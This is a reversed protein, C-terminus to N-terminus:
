RKLKVSLKTTAKNGAEDSLKVKLKAKAKKGQRLVKAIRKADKTKKPKLKLTKKTGGAVSKNQPKLKYSDKKVKVKGTAKAELDEKAKVKVKVVIKKGKQKQTRKATATGDTSAGRDFVAVGSHFSAVYANEGDPSVSAARAGNLAIGNVCAGGYGKEAICGATGREQTLAGSKTDRDFVAVAGNSSGFRDDIIASAVYVSKGDPSTIVANPEKLARGKTCGIKTFL